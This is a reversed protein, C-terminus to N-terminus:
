SKKIGTKKEQKNDKESKRDTLTPNLWQKKSKLTFYGIVSAALAGISDVIIDKMTDTLAAHGVLETGDELRFKQMNLGLLGDFTFEYIEWVAGITVAFCFAFLAVFLPSLKMTVSESRNLISVVMFGFLGAMVASMGHLVVDWHPVEYFFDRVEGLFIACYLFILYVIYLLSPMEFKFKRTLLSPLHLVILGLICQVLMLTYDTVSRYSEDNIDIRRTVAIKYIIYAISVAFSIWVLVYIIAAYKKGKDWRSKTAVKDKKKM